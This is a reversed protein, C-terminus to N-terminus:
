VPRVNHITVPGRWLTLGCKKCVRTPLPITMKVPKDDLEVGVLEFRQDRDSTDTHPCAM